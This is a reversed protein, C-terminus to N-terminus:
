VRFGQVRFRLGLVGLGSVGFGLGWVEFWVGRFGVGWVRVGLSWVKRIM